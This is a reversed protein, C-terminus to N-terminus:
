GSNVATADARGVRSAIRVTEAVAWRDATRRLMAEMSSSAPPSWEPASRWSWSPPSAWMLGLESVRSEMCPTALRLRQQLEGALDRSVCSEWAAIRHLVQPRRALLHSLRRRGRYLRPRHVADSPLGSSARILVNRGGPWRRVILNRTGWVSAIPRGIMSAPAAACGEPGRSISLEPRGIKPALWSRSSLANPRSSSLVFEDPMGIMRASAPLAACLPEPMGIMPLGAVSGKLSHSGSVEPGASQRSCNWGSVAAVASMPTSLGLPVQRSRFLITVPAVRAPPAAPPTRALALRWGLGLTEIESVQYGTGADPRM